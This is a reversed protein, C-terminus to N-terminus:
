ANAGEVEKSSLFINLSDRWHPVTIGFNVKVKTKNLLSYTPRKAKTPYQDSTLRNLPIAKMLLGNEIGIEMIAQAFEYWSIEGENSYHYTGYKNSNQSIIESVLSSLDYAFTPSGVQDAIIGMEDKDNMLRVMTHVFNNGHEGYLWATRVIFYDTAIERIKNEGALKSEGYVGIPNTPADESLATSSTGDFVYDTSFHILKAGIEKAVTAINAVGTENLAYCFDVADEADEADEVATYASCNIIWNIKKCSAYKRLSDIELISVESDTTFLEGHNKKLLSSVETGLMGRAGIVWIV